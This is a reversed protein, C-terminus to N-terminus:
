ARLCETYHQGVTACTTKQKNLTRATETNRKIIIIIIIIIGAKVTVVAQSV